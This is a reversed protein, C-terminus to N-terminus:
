FVWCWKTTLERWISRSLGWIGPPPSSPRKLVEQQTQKTDHLFLLNLRSKVDFFRTLLIYIHFFVFCYLRNSVVYFFRKMVKLFSCFASYLFSKLIFSFTALQLVNLILIKQEDLVMLFFFFGALLPFLYRIYTHTYILMQCLAWIGVINLIKIIFSSLRVFTILFCSLIDLHNTFM